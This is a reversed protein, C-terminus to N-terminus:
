VIHLKHVSNNDCLATKQCEEGTAALHLQNQMLIAEIITFYSISIPVAIKGYAILVNKHSLLAIMFQIYLCIEKQSRSARRTYTTM